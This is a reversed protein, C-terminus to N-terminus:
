MVLYWDDALIDEITPTWVGFKVDGYRMDIQAPREIEGGEGLINVLARTEENSGEVIVSRESVFYCYMGMGNWGGRTVKRGTRLWGLAVDFREGTRQEGHQGPMPSGAITHFRGAPKM